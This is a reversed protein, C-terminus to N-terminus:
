NTMTVTTDSDNYLRAMTNTMMMDITDRHQRAKTDFGIAMTINMTMMITADGGDHQTNFRIATTTNMTM